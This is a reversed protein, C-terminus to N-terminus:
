HRQRFLRYPISIIKPLLHGIDYEVRSWLTFRTDPLSSFARRAEVGDLRRASYDHMREYLAASETGAVAIPVSPRAPFEVNEPPYYVKVGVDGIGEAHETRSEASEGELGGSLEYFTDTLLMYEKAAISNKLLRHILIVHEGALERFGRIEKIAVEGHHLVVKLHLKEVSSCAPCRCTNCAILARERARFAEFFGNVQKLVDRAAAQPNDGTVAYLFVADGELKAITLPYDAHTIVAELLDTIIVEAHLLSTTHLMLFRTYGSIDAIVLCAHKLEM